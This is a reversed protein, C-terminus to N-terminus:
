LERNSNKEARSNKKQHSLGPIFLRYVYKDSQAASLVSPRYVRSVSQKGSNRDEANSTGAAAAAKGVFIQRASHFNIRCRFDPSKPSM